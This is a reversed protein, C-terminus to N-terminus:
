EKRREGWACFFDDRTLPGKYLNLCDGREVGHIDHHVLNNGWFACDKCRVIPEADVTPLSAITVLIEDASYETRGTITPAFYGKLAYADILRPMKEGKERPVSRMTKQHPLAYWGM